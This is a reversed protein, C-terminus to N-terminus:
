EETAPTVPAVGVNPLLGDIRELLQSFLQAEAEYAAGVPNTGYVLAMRSYRHLEAKVLGRCACLDTRLGDIEDAMDDLLRAANLRLGHENQLVNPAWTGGICQRACQRAEETSPRVPRDNRGADANQLQENSMM